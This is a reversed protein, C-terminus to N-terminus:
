FLYIKDVEAALGCVTKSASTLIAAMDQIAKGFGYGAQYEAFVKKRFAGDLYGALAQAEIRRMQASSSKNWFTLGTMKLKETDEFNTDIQKDMGLYVWTFLCAENDKDWSFEVSAPDGNSTRETAM